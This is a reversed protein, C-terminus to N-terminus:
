IVLPVVPTTLVSRVMNYGMEHEKAHQASNERKLVVARQRECYKKQHLQNKVQRKEREEAQEETNEEVDLV